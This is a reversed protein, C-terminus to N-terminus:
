HQTSSGIRTASLAENTQEAKQIHTQTSGREGGGEVSM